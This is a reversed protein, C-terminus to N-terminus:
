MEAAMKVLYLYTVRSIRMLWPQLLLVVAISTALFYYISNDTYTIGFLPWYWLLNLFLIIVTLAYNIGPGNNSEGKLRYGCEPCNDHIRLLTGLPFISRRTFVRGRRCQPCRGRLFGAMASPRSKAEEM